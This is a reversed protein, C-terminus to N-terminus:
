RPAMSAVPGDHGVVAALSSLLRIELERVREGSMGLDRGIDALTDGHMRRVIVAKFKPKMKRVRVWVFQFLDAREVLEAPDCGHTDELVNASNAAGDSDRSELSTTASRARMADVAMRADSAEWGSEEVLTEIPADGSTRERAAQEARLRGALAYAHTPTRVITGYEAIARKIKQRIWWSAYTTFRGRNGDYMEAARILGLNGEEILDVTDIGHGHYRRAISVVLRLNARILRQKAEVDGAAKRSALEVEEEKTLLPERDADRFYISLTDM